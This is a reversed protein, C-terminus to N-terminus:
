LVPFGLAAFVGMREKEWEPSTYSYEGAISESRMATRSLAIRVLALLAEERRANDDQPVYSVVVFRSWKLGVPLREIRGEAGWSCFDTDETLTYGTESPLIYKEVVSTISAIGRKLYLNAMGGQLTESVSTTGDVYHAGFRRVIEADERDIVTQLQADTLSTHIRVKVEEPTLLSM